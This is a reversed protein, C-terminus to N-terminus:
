VFKRKNTQKLKNQSIHTKKARKEVIEKIEPGGKKKLERKREGGRREGGKRKEDVRGDVRRSRERCLRPAMEEELPSSAPPYFEM